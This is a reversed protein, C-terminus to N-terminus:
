QKTERKEDISLIDTKNEESCTLDDTKNLETKYDLVIKKFQNGRHEFNIFWDFSACGPSLLVTDKKEAHQITSHIAEEFSLFIECDLHNKFIKNLRPALEGIIYLKKVKEKMYPILVSLDEGKDSGGFILHINNEFSLLAKKVSEANTAKSDNIYEVDNIFAVHELRHELSKFSFIAEEITSLDVFPAVALLSALINQLNHPGKLALNDINSVVKTDNVYISKEKLYAINPKNKRLNQLILDIKPDTDLIDESHYKCSGDLLSQEHIPLKGNEKNFIALDKLFNEEISFYNYNCKSYDTVYRVISKTAQDDFNLIKYFMTETDNNKYLVRSNGNRFERFTKEKLWLAKQKITIKMNNFINFKTFAYERFSRYRDLHDPTINLILAVDPKFFEIKELQFSSIELVIFDKKKEIHNSTYVKGINGALITDFGNTKLIHYILSSTTSKGNSGTVAIIKTDPHTLRYAYEIESIIKIGKKMAQKLIPLDQPIGPSVVIYDMDLLKESHEGFEIQIRKYKNNEELQHAIEWKRIFTDYLFFERPKIDSLLVEHYFAALRKAVAKGSRAIGMVGVKVPKLMAKEKLEM